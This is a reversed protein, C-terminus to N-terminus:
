KVSGHFFATASATKTFCGTSSFALSIGTSYVEVPGPNFSIGMTTNAPVQVCHIPTVAGDAPASTANFVLFYGATAGTTVYASYLNGASAKLVHTGEAATSVIATIGAASGATPAIEVGNTTIDTTQDIGVKGIIASGAPTAAILDAHLQRFCAMATNTTACTAADAKAGLTVMAGDAVSGSAYAGSAVAGSAISGSAATIATTSGSLVQVGNTTGPTTQDIGVKGILNTGAPTAAGTNTIISQLAAADTTSLTVRVGSATTGTGLPGTITVNGGGGGGGTVAISGDSAIKLIYCHGSSDDYAIEGPTLNTDFCSAAAAPAAGLVINLMAGPLLLSLASLVGLLLKRM